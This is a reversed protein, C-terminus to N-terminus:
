GDAEGVDSHVDHHEMPCLDPLFECVPREPPSKKEEKVQVDIPEQYYSGLLIM